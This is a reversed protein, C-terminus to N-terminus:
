DLALASLENRLFEQCTNILEETDAQHDIIVDDNSNTSGMNYVHAIEGLNEIVLNRFAVPDDKIMDIFGAKEGDTWGSVERLLYDKFGQDM